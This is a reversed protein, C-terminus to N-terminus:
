VVAQSIPKEGLKVSEGKPIFHVPALHKKYLM